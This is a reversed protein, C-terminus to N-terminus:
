QVITDDVRCYTLTLASTSRQMVMDHDYKEDRRTYPPVTCNKIWSRNIQMGGGAQFELTACNLESDDIVVSGSVIMFGSLTEQGDTRAVAINTSSRPGLNMNCFRVKSGSRLEIIFLCDITFQPCGIIEIPKKIMVCEPSYNGPHVQITDFAAACEVARKLNEFEYDKGVHLIERHHVGDRLTKWSQSTEKWMRSEISRKIVWDMWFSSPPLNYDDSTGCWGFPEARFLHHYLPKWLAIAAIPGKIVNRIQSHVACLAAVDNNTLYSFVKLCLEEPIHFLFLIASDSHSSPKSSKTRSRKSLESSKSTMMSKSKFTKTSKFKSTKTPEPKVNESKTADAGEDDPHVLATFEFYEASPEEESSIRKKLYRRSRPRRRSSRKSKSDTGSNKKHKKKKGLEKAALTSALLSDGFEGLAFVEEVADAYLDFRRQSKETQRKARRRQHRTRKPSKPM